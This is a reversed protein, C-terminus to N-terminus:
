EWYQSGFDDWGTGAEESDVWEVDVPMYFGVSDGTDVPVPKCAINGAMVVIAAGALLAPWPNRRLPRPLITAAPPKSNM